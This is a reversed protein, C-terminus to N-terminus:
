DNIIELLEETIEEELSERLVTVDVGNHYIKTIELEGGESEACQEPSATIIAPTVETYDFEVELELENNKVPLFITLTQM